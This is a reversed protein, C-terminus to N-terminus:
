PLSVTPAGHRMEGANVRWCRCTPSMAIRIRIERTTLERAMDHPLFSGSIANILLMSRIPNHLSQQRCEQPESRGTMPRSMALRPPDM